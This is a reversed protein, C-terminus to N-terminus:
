PRPQESYKELYDMTEKYPLPTRNLATMIKTKELGIRDVGKIRQAAKNIQTENKFITIRSKEWKMEDIKRLSDLQIHLLQQRDGFFLGCFLFSLPEQNNEKTTLAKLINGEGIRFYYDQCLELDNEYCFKKFKEKIKVNGSKSILAWDLDSPAGQEDVYFYGKPTSGYIIFGVFDNNFKKKMKQAIDDLVVLRASLAELNPACFAPKKGGLANLTNRNQNAFFELMTAGILVIAPFDSLKMNEATSFAQQRDGLNALIEMLMMQMKPIHNSLKHKQNEEQMAAWLGAFSTGHGAFLATRLKSKLIAVNASYAVLSIEDAALKEMLGKSSLKEELITFECYNFNALAKAATARQREDSSDAMKKILLLIEKQKDISFNNGQLLFIAAEQNVFDKSKLLDVITKQDDQEIKEKHLIELAMKRDKNLPFLFALRTEPKIFERKKALELGFSNEINKMMYYSKLMTQIFFLPTPKAFTKGAGSGNPIQLGM